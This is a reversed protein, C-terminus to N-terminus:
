NEPLFVKSRKVEIGQNPAFFSKQNIIAEDHIFEELLDICSGAHILKVQFACNECHVRKPRAWGCAEM